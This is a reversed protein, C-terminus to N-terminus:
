MRDRNSEVVKVGCFFAYITNQTYHLFAPRNQKRLSTEGAKSNLGHILSIWFRDDSKLNKKLPDCYLIFITKVNAYHKHTYM